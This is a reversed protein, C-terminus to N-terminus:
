VHARGIQHWKDNPDDADVPVWGVQKGTEPDIVSVAFFNNPPTQGKKVTHRKYLKGSYIWCATGDHKRTAVGEGNTVWEAGEATINVVHRPPEHTRIFLTPIKNM